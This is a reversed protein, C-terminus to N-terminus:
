HSINHKVNLQSEKHNKICYYIQFFTSVPKAQDNSSTMPENMPTCSMNHKTQGSCTQINVVCQAFTVTSSSVNQVDGCNKSPIPVCPVFHNPSWHRSLMPTTHTWMIHIPQAVTVKERPLM